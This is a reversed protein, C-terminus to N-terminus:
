GGLLMVMFSYTVWQAFGAPKVPPSQRNFNTGALRCDSAHPQETSSRAGIASSRWDQM